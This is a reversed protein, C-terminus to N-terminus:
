VRGREAGAQTCNRQTLLGVRCDAEELMIAGRWDGVLVVEADLAVHGAVRHNFEAVHGVDAVM